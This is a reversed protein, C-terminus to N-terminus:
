TGLFHRLGQTEEKRVAVDNNSAEEGPAELVPRVWLLWDYVVVEGANEGAGDLPNVPLEALKDLPLLLHLKDVAAVEEQGRAPVQFRLEHRVGEM